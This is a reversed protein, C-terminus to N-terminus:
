VASSATLKTGAWKAFAEIKHAQEVLENINSNVALLDDAFAMASTTHDGATSQRLCGYQYGRGELQAM